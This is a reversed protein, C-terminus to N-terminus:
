ERRNRSHDQLDWPAPEGGLWEHFWDLHANYYFAMEQWGPWHGAGPFVILRSPVGRKQLATFYMLSQTYPVRYDLEGTIVLSPTKFNEVYRSPSWRDYHASTWPEGCMDKEPFWLEETAGYFSPLDFLGMMAATARFRDTHGQFWMMMYGGYSWGMAGMREVDVYPLEELADTVKMLDRFVRGGWDCAIGDVLDQGYGSSGTPNPLAVVYGKGPYVQWDGRYADSWQSQPGGHVNLILPYKKRPDFDHPKILFLHVKYDGDGDVWMEEAPRIDVEAELEANFRTLREPEGGGAAVRFIETPEGISRRSYLIQKGDKTFTWGNIYAHTHLLEVEGGGAGVRYLPTRGHHEAEFVLSQGDGTWAMEVVWDDFRDRDTLYRVSGDERSYVALRFLDAEYGPTEQSLFAIRRGDPSFLPAGDWGDNADTLNVPDTEEDVAVMWLDANTSEAPKEDHNSVYVLMKGDPSFDYGRGGGLSFTPSDQEGPTVDRVVEGSKADVLLIHTHKGDRWSTWHRYLLEDAVHVELPGADRDDAIGGNCEPDAGCEAYVESTVAIYRGDPSVVPDSVGMPFSTLRRAKGGGIKMRYLQSDGGRDSVFVIQKGDPLFAPSHDGHRGRTLRRQDSGDPNMRWIETWKENAALDTRGVTFVVHEGLPGVVPAGVVVSRYYDEIEFARKGGDGSPEAGQVSAALLLSLCFWRITPMTKEKDTDGDHYVNPVPNHPGPEM